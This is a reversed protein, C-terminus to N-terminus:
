GYQGEESRFYGTLEVVARDLGGEVDVSFVFEKKALTKDYLIDYYHELLGSIVGATDGAIYQEHLSQAREQGMHPKLLEFRREVQDSNELFIAGYEAALYKARWERSAKIEIPIGTIIAKVIKKPLFIRGIKKSEGELVLFPSDKVRELEFYLSADFDQQSVSHLGVDGFISGRHSALGELDISGIDPGLMEMLKTKASGTYGYLVYVKAPLRAQELYNLIERRFAKYGGSLRVIGTAPSMMSLVAESRMGGRFCYILVDRGGCHAKITSVIADQRALAIQRGIDMALEKGKHAYATGINAYEDNDFLPVNFAKPISGKAFERPSRVDICCYRSFGALLQSAEILDSM